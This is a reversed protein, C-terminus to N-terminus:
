AQALAKEQAELLQRVGAKGLALLEALQKETFTAEEGTGQLEIFEGASNMVLNFDVEASNDELYCLDLLARQNVIGISVAAVAHLIPNEEIKKAAMLRRIAIVLAVYAGTIAATRTGGDAQLVDCDVWITRQGLKDLDLTARMARGILRQIEQSRGDIRGKSSDRAKRTLTSYPLMSYESTIWGGTVGQEKMWRPVSEDVTVGCIVRTNGWEILTSGTAHPAIHNQFRIPRLQDAERGDPRLNLPAAVTEAM